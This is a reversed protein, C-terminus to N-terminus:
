SSCTVPCSTRLATLVDPNYCHLFAGVEIAVIDSYIKTREADLLFWNGAAFSGTDSPSSYIKGDYNANGFERMYYVHNLDYNEPSM